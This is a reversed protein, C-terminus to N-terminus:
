LNIKLNEKCIYCTRANEYSEQQEKTLKMKKKKFGNIKMAHVRASECFRKM